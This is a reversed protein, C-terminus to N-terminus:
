GGVCEGAGYQNPDLGEQFLKKIPDSSPEEPISSYPFMVLLQLLKVWRLRDNESETRFEHVEGNSTTITFKHMGSAFVGSGSGSGQSGVIGSGSHSGTSSPTTSPSASLNATEPVIMTTYAGQPPNTYNSEIKAEFLSVTSKPKQGPKEVKDNVEYLQLQAPIHKSSQDTSQMGCYAAVNRKQTHTLTNTLIEFKASKLM